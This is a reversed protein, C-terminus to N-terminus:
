FAFVLEQVQAQGPFQPVQMYHLATTLDSIDIKGDKNIDIRNFLDALRKEEEPSLVLGGDYVRTSM